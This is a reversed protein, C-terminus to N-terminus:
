TYYKFVFMIIGIITILSLGAFFMFDKYNEKIIFNCIAAWSGDFWIRNNCKVCSMSCTESEIDRWFSTPDYKKNVEDTTM